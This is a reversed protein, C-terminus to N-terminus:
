QASQFMAIPAGTPDALVSFRGMNPIDRPPVMVTAGLAGARDTREDVNAVGVYFLWHSPAPASDPMQMMGATDIDGRKMIWYTGTEGMDVEHADWGFVGTYFARAEKVDHTLLEHWVFRGPGPPTEPAPDGAFKFPSIYGGTPDVVVAMRGVKPIDFPEQGVKGGLTTAKTAAADVDDTTVYAIWHSPLGASKDLPVMGGMGTEGVVIANYKGAGTMDEERYTWGFLDAYFTRAGDLDTAMLDYWV